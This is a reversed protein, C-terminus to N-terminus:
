AARIRTPSPATTFADTWMPSSATCRADPAPRVGGGRRRSCAPACPAEASAASVAAGAPSSSGSAFRLVLQARGARRVPPYARGTRHASSRRRPRRVREGADVRQNRVLWRGELLVPLPDGSLPEEATGPRQAHVHLHPEGTNGSNGVRGLLTGEEVAAGPSVAVSGSGLHALVVWAEGCDLIVHNGAMHDRDTQPVPLDPLGDHAAVVVGPCPAVVRAGFAAYASPDEPALGRRRSGWRGVGVLDVALSQGRWPRFRPDPGLTRLHANVVPHSGGNAVRFAGSDLPLALRVLPEAPARRGLIGLGAVLLSALGTAAALVLAATAPLGTRAAPRRRRWGVVAAVPLLAGWLGALGYPLALWPVAVALALLYAAAAAVRVALGAAGGPRALAIWAVWALPVGAQLLLPLAAATM